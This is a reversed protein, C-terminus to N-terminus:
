PSPDSVESESMSRPKPSSRLIWGLLIMGASEVILFSWTLDMGGKLSVKETLCEDLESEEECGEKRCEEPSDELEDERVVELLETPEVSLRGTV